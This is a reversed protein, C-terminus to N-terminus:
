QGRIANSEIERIQNSIHETRSKISELQALINAFTTRDAGSLDVEHLATNANEVLKLATYRRDKDEQENTISQQAQVIANAFEASRSPDLLQTRILELDCDPKTGIGSLPDGQEPEGNSATSEPPAIILKIGKEKAVRGLVEGANKGFAQRFEYGRTGLARSEKIIPFAVIRRKEAETGSKGELELQLRKFLEFKDEVEEYEFPKGLYKDLYEEALELQTMERNMDQDRSFRYMKRLKEPPIKMIERRYRLKLRRSIWDYQLKTEPIEQLESEITEIDAELANDPLVVCDVHSFEPYDGSYKGFLERMAALRRNGNVMVGHVTILLRETQLGKQELEQYIPGRADKSIELVLKHQADQVSQNEEGSYFFDAPLRHHLVHETQKLFTRGNRMRYIPLDIPIRVVPCPVPRDRFIVTEKQASVSRESDILAKRDVRDRVTIKFSM